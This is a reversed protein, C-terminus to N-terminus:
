RFLGRDREALEVRDVRDPDFALLDGDLEEVFHSAVVARV